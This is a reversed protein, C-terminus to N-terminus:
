GLAMAIWMLGIGVAAFSPLNSLYGLSVMVVSGCYLVKKNLRM